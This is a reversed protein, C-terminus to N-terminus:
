APLPDAFLRAFALEAAGILLLDSGLEARRIDIPEDPLPLTRAAVGARLRAPEAAALASLFGGLVIRSPNLLNVVSSLAVALAAIQRRVEATVEASRDALLASEFEDPDARDLGLAALLVSRRVASELTGRAGITDPGGGRRISIHGIEGAHGNAGSVLAGGSIIGGGVGSAGGNVYVLDDVGRGAGFVWEAQAGLGADNAADVQIGLADALMAAVPVDRWGLHPALRVLGDARRVIGPVAVGAGVIRSGEGAGARLRRVADATAAVAREPTPPADFAIREKSQLRGGLHVLAVAVADVEPNVAVALPAESPRVLPSPRGVQGAGGSAEDEVVLGREVLEAVLAGITSRNLGSVRTLESRTAPAVHVRRLVLALNHRRVLDNRGGLEGFVDSAPTVRALTHVLWGM